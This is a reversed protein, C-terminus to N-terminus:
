DRWAIATDALVDASVSLSAGGTAQFSMTVGNILVADPVLPDSLWAVVGPRPLDLNAAPTSYRVTAPTGPVVELDTAIMTRVSYCAIQGFVLSAATEILGDCAEFANAYARADGTLGDIEERIVHVRYAARPLAFHPEYADVAAATLRERARTRAARLEARTASELVNTAAGFATWEPSDTFAAAVARTAGSLARATVADAQLLKAIETPVDRLHLQEAREGLPWVLRDTFEPTTLPAGPTLQPAPLNPYMPLRARLWAITRRHAAEVRRAIELWCRHKARLQQEDIDPVVSAAMPLRTALLLPNSTLAPAGASIRQLMGAVGPTRQPANEPLDRAFRDLAPTQRWADALDRLTRWLDPTPM